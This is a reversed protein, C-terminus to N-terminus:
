VCTGQHTPAPAKRNKFALSKEKFDGAKQQSIDILASAVILGPHRTFHLPADNCSCVFFRKPTDGFSCVRRIGMLTLTLHANGSQGPPPSNAPGSPLRMLVTLM